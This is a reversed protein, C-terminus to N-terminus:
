RRFERAIQAATMHLITPQEYPSRMPSPCRELKRIMQQMDDMKLVIGAKVAALEAIRKLIDDAVAAQDLDPLLAAIVDVHNLKVLVDPMARIQYTRNGFPAIGFWLSNLLDLNAELLRAQIPLLDITQAPTLEMSIDTGAHHAAKLDEYIIRQHAHHQDVLYMGAPGEAIIYTAGIQGVVRLIPLTRPKAPQGMGDPIAADDENDDMFSLDPQPFSGPDYLPLNMNLQGPMETEDADAWSKNASDSPQGTRRAQRQMQYGSATQLVAERVTRQVAVFVANQDQFRVEAKTPHVNVDVFDAPVEIMLVAYPYRGKVVLQHYAQTVAHNLGSDQVARGNVFITIRSRDNRHHDPQSVYGYVRVAGGYRPLPDEGYVELMQKFQELGMVKVVVDVLQGSGSSHFVERGDQKLAFRVGPYAMAYRTILTTIHRKETSEAKLFKLRAPTNYFLNEVAIVTGAPAGVARQHLVEGGQITIQTGAEEGRCRTTATIQSVSAISALAEGRFGLTQIQMLDDISLLKSTAHRAFALTVESAPIGNGDDSVRILRKGGDMAEVHISTAGADLANELLEKVVSAPREVVEGAAIQAIVLDNLLQISM